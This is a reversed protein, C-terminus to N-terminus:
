CVVSTSPDFMHIYNQARNSFYEYSALYQAEGTKEHLAKAMNAIGYDGLKPMPPNDDLYERLFRPFRPDRMLEAIPKRDPRM